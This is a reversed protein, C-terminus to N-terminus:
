SGEQLGARYDTSERSGDRSADTAFSSERSGDGVATQRSVIASHIQTRPAALRCSHTPSEAISLLTFNSHTLGPIESIKQVNKQSKRSMKRVSILLFFGVAFDAVYLRPESM